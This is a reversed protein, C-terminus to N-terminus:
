ELHLDIKEGFSALNPGLKGSNARVEGALMDAVQIISSDGRHDPRAKINKFSQRNDVHLSRRLILRLRRIFDPEARHMDVYLMQQAVYSEPCLTVLRCIAENIRGPGTTTAFYSAPWGRKDIALVTARVPASILMDFFQRKTREVSRMHKFVYHDSVRLAMRLNTMTMEFEHFQEWEVHCVAVVFWPNGGQPAGPDGSWDLGSYIM